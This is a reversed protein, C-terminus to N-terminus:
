GCEERSVSFMVIEGAMAQDSLVVVHYEMAAHSGRSVGFL